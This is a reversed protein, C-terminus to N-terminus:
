TIESRKGELSSSLSEFGTVNNDFLASKTKNMPYLNLWHKTKERWQFRSVVTIKTTTSHSKM